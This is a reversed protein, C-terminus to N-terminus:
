TGSPGVTFFGRYSLVSPNLEQTPFIGQLLSHHGVGTNRGPFGGHVFADPPSGNMPDWSDSIVSCGLVCMEKFSSLSSRLCSKMLFFHYWCCSSTSGSIVVALSCLHNGTHLTNWLLQFCFHCNKIYLYACLAM